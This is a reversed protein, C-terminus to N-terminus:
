QERSHKADFHTWGKLCPRCPKYPNLLEPGHQDLAFTSAGGAKGKHSCVVGGEVRVPLFVQLLITVIAEFSDGGSRLKPNLEAKCISKTPGKGVVEFSFSYGVAIGKNEVCLNKQFLFCLPRLKETGPM